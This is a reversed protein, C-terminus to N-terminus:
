DGPSPRTERSGSQVVGCLERSASSREIDEVTRGLLDSRKELPAFFRKGGAGSSFKSTAAQSFRFLGEFRAPTILDYQTKNQVCEGGAHLLRGPPTKPALTLPPRRPSLLKKAMRLWGRSWANAPRSCAPRHAIRQVDTRLAVRLIRSSPSRCHGLPSPAPANAPKGGPSVCDEACRDQSSM